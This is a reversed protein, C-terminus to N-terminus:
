AATSTTATASAVPAQVPPPEFGAERRVLVVVPAGAGVSDVDAGTVVGGDLVVLVVPRGRVVVVSTTSMEPPAALM